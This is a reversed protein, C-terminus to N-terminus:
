MASLRDIVDRTIDVSPSHWLISDDQMDLIMSYGEEEAIDEIVEYLNQYFENSNALNKQLNDLEINKAYSYEQLYETDQAIQTELRLAETKKGERELELKRMQKERLESTLEDIEKQFSARKQDYNRVASSNRFYTSYVLSTDVVGFMTIQQAFSMTAGAVLLCVLLLKKM